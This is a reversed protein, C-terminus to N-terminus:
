RIQSPVMLNCTRDRAKSLPNLIWSQQSSHHLDCVYRPDWTATATTYALLESEVGLRPVEMHWLPLGSVVVVVVFGGSHYSKLPGCLSKDWDRLYSLDLTLEHNLTTWSTLAPSLIGM